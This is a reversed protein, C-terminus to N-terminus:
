NTITQMAEYIYKLISNNDKLKLIKIASSKVKFKFDVYKNLLTFNDFIIVPFNKYIGFNEETYGLIFSKNATLISTKGNLIILLINTQNNM